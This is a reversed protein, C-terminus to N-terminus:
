GNNSEEEIDWPPLDRSAKKIQFQYRREVFETMKNDLRTLPKIKPMNMKPLAIETQGDFLTISKEGNKAYLIDGRKLGNTMQDTDIIQVKWWNSM